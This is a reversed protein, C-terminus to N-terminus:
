QQQLQTDNLCCHVLTAQVCLGCLPQHVNDSARMVQRGIASECVACLRLVCCDSNLISVAVASLLAATGRQLGAVGVVRGNGWGECVARQCAASDVVQTAVHKKAAKLVLFASHRVRLVQASSFVATVRVWCAAGGANSRWM